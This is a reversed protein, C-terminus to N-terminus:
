PDPAPEPLSAHVQLVQAGDDGRAVAQGNIPAGQSRKSLVAPHLPGVDLHKFRDRQDQAHPHIVQQVDAGQLWGLRDGDDGVIDEEIRLAVRAQAIESFPAVPPVTGEGLRFHAFQLRQDRLRPTGQDLAYIGRERLYAKAREAKEELTLRGSKDARVEMGHADALARVEAATQRGPFIFITSM